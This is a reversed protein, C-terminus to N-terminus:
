GKRRGAPAKLAKAAIAEEAAKVIDAATLGHRAMLEEVSGSEMYTDKIGVFRMPVPHTEAVVQAVAAGMGGRVLHEEATVIAGTARAAAIIAQRDVPKVSLMDLVRAEIGKEALMAAADLAVGTMLGCAMLTVDSGPRVIAAKGIALPCTGNAYVRPFEGRSSRIYVPGDHAAAVRVAAEMSTEDSPVLISFTPLGGILALDEISMSTPGERGTSIGAHSGLLKVNLGAIAVQLRLQDYANPLLFSPLSGVFPIFGNAAFGASVGVLNAEAIGLNFFRDPFAKRMAAMGTSSSLDGDLAVVRPDAQALALLAEGFADRMQRTGAPLGAKEGIRM